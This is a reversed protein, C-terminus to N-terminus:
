NKGALTAIFTQTLETTGDERKFTKATLPCVGSTIINGDQVVGLGSYQGGTFRFDTRKRNSSTKLPNGAYGYRKGNFGRSGALIINPYIATRSFTRVQKGKLVEAEALIIVSGAQAAVPKGDVIAQKVITVAEPSVPPGPYMGVGMCAMIIGVYDDVKVEALILDPKLTMSPARITAGSTNAVVIEYGADKLMSTMVGVEKTLMLETDGSYGERPILLVKLASQASTETLMFSHYPLLSATMYMSAGIVVFLVLKKM